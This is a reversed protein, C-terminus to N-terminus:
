LQLVEASSNLHDTSAAPPHSSLEVRNEHHVPMVEKKLLEEAQAIVDSVPVGSDSCLVRHLKRDRPAWRQPNAGTSLVVSPVRLADALHSVSTDNCVVLRAGRVVAALAGLSTRGALDLASEDLRAAVSRTLESEGETGTLVVDLSRRSLHRAVEVFNELPWRRAPTSAGVHMCIYRGPQLDRPAAASQLALCDATDLPFELQSGKSQVGLSELLGLLRDVELGHEPYPFFRDPDPCYHGPEFFGAMMPAGFAAVLPNTIRGSGHMQLVLDFGDRQIQDLFLPMRSLAPAREPLGPYGPFERFGSLYMRFCHVFEVAWPLGILIIEAEPLAHRLARFAPVACLLDGLQLARLIAVRRPPPDGLCSISM